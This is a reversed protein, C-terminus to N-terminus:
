QVYTPQNEGELEINGEVIILTDSRDSDRATLVGKKKKVKSKAKIPRSYKSPVKKNKYLGELEANEIHDERVCNEFAKARRMMEVKLSMNAKNREFHKKILEKTNKSINKKCIKKGSNGGFIELDM